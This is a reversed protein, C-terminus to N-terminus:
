DSTAPHLRVHGFRLGTRIPPKGSEAERYSLDAGVSLSGTPQHRGQYRCILPHVQADM